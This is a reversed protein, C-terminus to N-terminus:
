DDLDVPRLGRGDELILMADKISGIPGGDRMTAEPELDALIGWGISAVLSDYFVQRELNPVQGIARRIAATAAPATRPIWEDARVRELGWPALGGVLHANAAGSSSLYRRWEGSRLWGGLVNEAQRMGTLVAALVTEDFLDVIPAIRAAAGWIRMAQLGAWGDAGPRIDSWRPSDFVSFGENWVDGLGAFPGLPVEVRGGRAVAFLTDVAYAMLGGLQIGYGTWNASTQLGQVLDGWGLRFKGTRKLNEVRGAYGGGSRKALDAAQRKGARGSKALKGTPMSLRQVVNLADAAFALQGVGPIARKTGWQIASLVVALTSVDDQLDDVTTMVEALERVGLPTPSRALDDRMQELKRRRQEPDRTESTPSVIVSELGPWRVQYGLDGPRLPQRVPARHHESCAGPVESGIADRVRCTVREYVADVPRTVPSLARSLENAYFDAATALWEGFWSPALDLVISTDRVTDAFDAVSQESGM